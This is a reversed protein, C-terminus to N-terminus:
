AGMGRGEREERVRRAEEIAEVEKESWRAGEEEEESAQVVEEGDCLVSERRVVVKAREGEELPRCREDLRGGMRRVMEMEALWERKSALHFSTVSIQRTYPQWTYLEGTPLLETSLSPSPYTITRSITLVPQPPLPKPSSSSPSSSPHARAPLSTTMSLHRRLM